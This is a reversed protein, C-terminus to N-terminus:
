NMAIKVIIFVVFLLLPLMFHLSFRFYFCLNTISFNFQAFKGLPQVDRATKETKPTYLHKRSRRSKKLKGCFLM